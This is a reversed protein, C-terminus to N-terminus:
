IKIMQFTLFFVFNLRATTPMWCYAAKRQLSSNGCTAGWNPASPFTKCIPNQPPFADPELKQKNSSPIFRGDSGVQKLLGEVYTSKLKSYQRWKLVADVIPHQERLSELLEANTSYGTKTKKGHPLQLEEFLVLGLQKPSGINFAHGAEDYVIQQVEEIQESLYHGFERVGKQDVLIGDHEMSALVETLQLEVQCLQEM